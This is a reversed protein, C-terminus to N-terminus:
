GKDDPAHGIAEGVAARVIGTDPRVLARANRQGMAAQGDEIKGGGPM